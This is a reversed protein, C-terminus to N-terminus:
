ADSPSGSAFAMFAAAPLYFIGISLAGLIAYSLLLVTAIARARRGLALGLAAISPPIALPLLVGSGQTALLSPHSVRVAASPPAAAGGIQVQQAELSTGTPAFALISSAALVLLLSALAM